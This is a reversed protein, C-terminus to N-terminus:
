RLFEILYNTSGGAHRTEFSALARAIRTFQDTRWRSPVILVGAHPRGTQAFLTTLRIFDDRNATVLCRGDQAALRLQELDSLGQRGLEECSIVDLGIGRGIEAITTSLNEDLYFRV